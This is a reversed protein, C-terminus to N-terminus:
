AGTSGFGGGGRKSDDLTAVERLEVHVIPRPILQVIRAPLSLPPAAPDVKILPVLVEGVYTRDIIGISNALMHGTKLISSRPVLDFYWGYAPQIKIGSRYFQVNGHSHAAAVLTLDFGSDSAHQKRPAVAEPLTRIWRFSTEWGHNRGSLGPVWTSWEVYSDRKRSLYVSAGDYLRALFDLANNGSWEIRDKMLSAPIGCFDHIAALMASSTSAIDCRPYPFHGGKGKPAAVCGDGDFYGRIFAWRLADTGLQPFRVVADKKGPAIQLLACVDRVVSRSCITFGTLERLKKLPLEPCAIDRLRELLAADKRHIYLAITGQMISGDSAIWGLLYAKEETSVDAFLADDLQRYRTNPNARGSSKLTRSCFLCVIKGGNRARTENALREEVPWTGRCKTSARFDCSV